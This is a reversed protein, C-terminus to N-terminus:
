RSEAREFVVVGAAVAVDVAALMALSEEGLVEGQADFLTAHTHSGPAARRQLPASRRCTTHRPRARRVSRRSPGDTPPMPMGTPSATCSCPRPARRTSVTEHRGPRSPRPREDWVM